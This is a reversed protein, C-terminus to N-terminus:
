KDKKLAVNNNTSQKKAILTPASQSGSSLASHHANPKNEMLQADRLLHNFSVILKGLSGSVDFHIPNIPRGIVLNEIKDSVELLHNRFYRGTSAFLTLLIGVALINLAALLYLLEQTWPAEPLIQLKVYGQINKNFIIPASVIITETTPEMYSPQYKPIRIQNKSDTVSLTQITSSSPIKQQYSDLKTEASIWDEGAIDDVISQAIVAAIVSGSNKQTIRSHQQQSYVIYYFAGNLVLLIMSTCLISLYFPMPILRIRRAINKMFYLCLLWYKQFFHKTHNRANNYKKEISVIKDRLNQSATIVKELWLTQNDQQDQLDISQKAAQLAEALEHGSQYRKEPSKNLLKKVIIWMSTPIDPYYSQVPKPALEVIQKYRKGWTDGYFPQHKCLLQYLIVGTSFLDSEKGIKEGQAQEPSMYEPTGMIMGTQTLGPEGMIDVHAIGFDTIKINENNEDSFMINSPKIDRHIVGNKHAYDLANALQIGIRIVEDIPLRDKCRMIGELTKGHLCEMAIFLDKDDDKSVSYITVINPHSLHGAAKAEGLFRNRYFANSSYENKLLKLAITRNTSPDFAKYVCAMGGEGLTDLIQYGNTVKDM